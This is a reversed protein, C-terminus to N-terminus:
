FFVLIDYSQAECKVLDMKPYLSQINVHLISLHISLDDFLSESTSFSNDTISNVSDPGLNPQIDGSLILLNFLWLCIVGTVQAKLLITLFITNEKCLLKVCKSPHKIYKFTENSRQLALILSLNSPLLIEQNFLYILQMLILIIHFKRFTPCKRASLHLTASVSFFLSGDLGDSVTKDIQTQM